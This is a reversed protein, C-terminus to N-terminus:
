TIDRRITTTAGLLSLLLGYGLLLLAGAGQSLLEGGRMPQGLTMASAAGGPLWRGVEPLFTVLLSDALLVWVLAVVIAAVQNRLLAGFGVGLVAYITVAAVVWSSALCM